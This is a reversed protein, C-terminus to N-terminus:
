FLIQWCEALSSVGTLEPSKIHGLQSGNSLPLICREFGLKGAEKVRTEAQAIGRIEGALGVEGFIVTRPDIAKEQHSSAIAAIIGLDVAPEDVQVGGAVNVFIDQNFLKVGMKKELV